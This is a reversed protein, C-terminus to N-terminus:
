KQNNEDKVSEINNLLLDIIGHLRELEMSLMTIQM